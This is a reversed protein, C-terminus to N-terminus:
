FRQRAWRHVIEVRMLSPLTYFLDVLVNFLLILPPNTPSSTPFQPAQSLPSGSTQAPSPIAMEATPVDDGPGNFCPNIM